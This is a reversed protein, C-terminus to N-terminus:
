ILVCPISWPFGLQTNNQHMNINMVACSFISLNVCSFKFMEIAIVESFLTAFNM